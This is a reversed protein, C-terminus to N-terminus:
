AEDETLARGTLTLFVDSLGPRHVAISDLAGTPLAEVIRPVLEHAQDAVIRVTKALHEADLGLDAKLVRVAEEPSAAALCPIDHLDFLVGLAHAVAPEDDVILVKLRRDGM